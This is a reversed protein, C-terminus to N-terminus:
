YNLSLVMDGGAGGKTKIRDTGVLISSPAVFNGALSVAFRRGMFVDWGTRVVPAAYGTAGLAGIGVHFGHRLENYSEVAGLFIHGFTAYVAIATQFPVPKGKGPTAVPTTEDAPAETPYKKILSSQSKLLSLLLGFETKRNDFKETARVQVNMMKSDEADGAVNPIAAAGAGFLFRYEPVYEDSDRGKQVQTLDVALKQYRSAVTESNYTRAWVLEKTQSNFVNLALVMHTTHYVLVADMFNEIGLQTAAAELKAMNTAPSSILLKGEVLSSTRQKCPVCSILKVRSNAHIREQLLTEVYDEYTSPIAKSVRVKRIALNSLGKIAGTKVDYALEALLEDLVEHFRRIQPSSAVRLREGDKARDSALKAAEAKSEVKSQAPGADSPDKEDEDDGEEWATGKKDTEDQAWAPAAGATALCLVLALHRVSVRM